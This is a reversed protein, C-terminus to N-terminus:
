HRFHRVGTFVVVIGLEDARQVIAADRISGGPQVVTRIGARGCADVNDPFPFFGDSLLVARGLHERVSDDIGPVDPNERVLNEWCARLALEISGVRNPQGCGM